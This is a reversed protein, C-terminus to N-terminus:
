GKSGEDPAACLAHQVHTLISRISVIEISTVADTIALCAAVADLLQGREATLGEIASRLTAIAATDKKRQKAAEAGSEMGSRARAMRKRALALADEWPKTM